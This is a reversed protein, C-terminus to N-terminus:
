ATTQIFNAHECILLNRILTFIESMKWLITVQHHTCEAKEQDTFKSEFYRFMDLIPVGLGFIATLIAEM